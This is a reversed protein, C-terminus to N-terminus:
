IESAEKPEIITLTKHAVWGAQVAPETIYIFRKIPSTVDYRNASSLHANNTPRAVDRFLMRDLHTVSRASRRQKDSLKTINTKNIAANGTM